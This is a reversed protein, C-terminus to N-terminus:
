RENTFTNIIISSNPQAIQMKIINIMLKPHQFFVIFYIISISFQFELASALSFAHKSFASMWEIVPSCQHM